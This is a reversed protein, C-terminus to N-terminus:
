DLHSPTVLKSEKLHCGERKVMYQKGYHSIHKVHMIGEVQEVFRQEIIKFELQIVRKTNIPLCSIEKIQWTHKSSHATHVLNWSKTNIGWM